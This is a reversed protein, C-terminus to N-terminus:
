FEIAGIDCPQDRRAGLQDRKPCAADNGGNIAQSTSLLPFHGNGPTGDDTFEGLGPDGTRDTPQLTITCGTPDGIVNNGLSIIPGSCDPGLGYPEAVTNHALITNQLEVTGGSVYIGGGASNEDSLSNEAITSNLIHTTGGFIGIAGGGNVSGIGTNRAVTSNTITLAGGLNLIGNAAQIFGSNDTIASDIITVTGSFIFLGGPGDAHNEAITSQVITMTGDETFLGDGEHFAHNGIVLSRIIRVQGGINTLGGAEGLDSENDTITSDAITAMGGNIFLGGGDSAINGAVTAQRLTITGGQNFLGAGGTCISYSQCSGGRITLGRLMLSGTVAVHLLRFQPANVNREVITQEAGTGRLTLASTIFPLGNAGDTTNNVTTLTYTGAALTITNQQGNANAQTIAAILCSVDGAGCAFMTAFAPQAWAWTLATLLATWFLVWGIDRRM